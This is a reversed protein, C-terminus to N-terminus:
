NQQVHKPANNQEFRLSFRTSGTVTLVPKAIQAHM